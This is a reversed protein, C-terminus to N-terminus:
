PDIISPNPSKTVEGINLDQPLKKVASSGNSIYKILENILENM